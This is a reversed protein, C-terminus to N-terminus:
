SSPQQQQMKEMAPAMLEQIKMLVTMVEPDNQYNMIAMPNTSLEMVAKQVKPNQFAKMLEPESILKQMMEEPKMGIQDFQAKFEPSDVSPVNQLMAEMANPDFSLNANALTQELQKRTTPDNLMWEFTEQNRMPEPLYPYLMKQMEPNKLMAEMNSLYARAREESKPDEAGEAAGAGGGAQQEFFNAAPAKWSPEAAAGNSPTSSPTFEAEVDTFSFGGKSGTSTGSSTSSGSSTTATAEVPAAGTAASSSAAPQSSSSPGRASTATVDVPPSAAGPGAAAAGFPNAGPAFPNAGGAFPNAGPAFPNAGGPPPPFGFPSAGGASGPPPTGGMQKMMQKMMQQMAMEQMKQPNAFQMAKAAVNAILFGVGIWVYWPWGSTAGPTAPAPPPASYQPQSVTPQATQSTYPAPQTVWEPASTSSTDAASAPAAAAASNKSKAALVLLRSPTSRAPIRRQVRGVRPLQGALRQLAAGRSVPVAQMM